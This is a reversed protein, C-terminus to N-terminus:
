GAPTNKGFRYAARDDETVPRVQSALVDALAVTYGDPELFEVLFSEGGPRIDVIIGVDGPMLGDEPSGDALLPSDPPVDYISELPIYDTLTVGTHEKFM